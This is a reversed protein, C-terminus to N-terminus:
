NGGIKRLRVAHASDMEAMGPLIRLWGDEGMRALLAEPLGGRDKEIEFERARAGLFREVVKDNEDPAVLIRYKGNSSIINDIAVIQGHFTGFSTGPWGSFIFAPWGDFIFRVDSGKKVLPFDVPRIYLEVALEYEAPLISVIAEGEKITEGIGAQLAKAIYGDQPATIYLFSRRQTYNAAQIQLKNVDAEATYRDSITSFRDSEAKAIKQNYEYLVTNLELRANMLDNRSTLLKNEQSVLKAQTEQLKLRKDELDTLSKIGQQYLEDTRKWQREAITYDLKARELDISDSTIKLETQRIKNNLQQNKFTLESRMARIQKDLADAKGEYATIASQKAQVQNETRPILNPDFYENKIESLFVITDGAKVLQGEQVYWKEIRGPLTSHITQPRHEPRLVTVKGKSQINQTWPLFMFAGLVLIVSLLWRKFYLHSRSLSTQSFSHFREIAVEKTITSDSINLM